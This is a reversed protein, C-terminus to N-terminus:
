LMLLLLLRWAWEWAIPNRRHNRRGHHGLSRSGSISFFTYGIPASYSSKNWTMDLM